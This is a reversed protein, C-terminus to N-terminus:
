GLEVARGASRDRWQEPEDAHPGLPWDDTEDAQGADRWNSIGRWLTAAARPPRFWALWSPKPQRQLAYGRAAVSANISHHM